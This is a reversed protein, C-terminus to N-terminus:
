KGEKIELKRFQVPGGEARLAFPSKDGKAPLSKIAEGNAKYENKGGASVIEFTNWEGEKFGKIDAKKLDFKAGRFMTDNNCGPSPNFEFRITVDGAYEKATEIWVDGKVKPDIGLTGDAALKFRGGAAETKGDLPEAPKAKTARTKWGSLDKGVLPAFDAASAATAAVLTALTVAFPLRSLSRM